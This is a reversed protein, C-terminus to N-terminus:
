QGVKKRNKTSKFRPTFEETIDIQYDSGDENIGVIEYIEKKTGGHVIYKFVCPSTFSPYHIKIIYTTNNEKKVEIKEIMEDIIEKRQIDNSIDRIEYIDINRREKTKLQELLNMLEAERKELENVKKEAESEEKEINDYIENYKELSMRIKGKNGNIYTEQLREYKPQIEKKIREKIVMIKISTDDLQTKTNNIEDEINNTTLANWKAFYAVRWCLFEAVNINLRITRLRDCYCMRTFDCSMVYNNEDFIKGKCYYINKTSHKQTGKCCREKM